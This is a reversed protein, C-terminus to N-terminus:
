FMELQGPYPAGPVPEDPEPPPLLDAGMAALRDAVEVPMFIGIQWTEDDHGVLVSVLDDNICWHIPVGFVTGLHLARRASWDADRIDRLRCLEQPQVRFQFEWSPGRLIVAVRDPDDGDPSISVNVV